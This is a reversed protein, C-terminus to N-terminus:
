ALGIPFSNDASQARTGGQICDRVFCQRVLRRVHKAHWYGLDMRLGSPVSSHLGPHLAACGPTSSNGICDLGRLPRRFCEIWTETARKSPKRCSSRQPGRTEDRCAPVVGPAVNWRGMRPSLSCVALCTCAALSVWGKAFPPPRLTERECDTGRNGRLSPAGM